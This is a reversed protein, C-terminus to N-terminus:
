KKRSGDYHIRRVANARRRRRCLKGDEGGDVNDGDDDDDEEDTRRETYVDWGATVHGARTSRYARTQGTKLYYYYYYNYYILKKSM